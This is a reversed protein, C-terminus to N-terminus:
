NQIRWEQLRHVGDPDGCPGRNNSGLSGVVRVDKSRAPAYVSEGDDCTLHATQCHNCARAAKKRKRPKDGASAKEGTSTSTGTGAGAESSKQGSPQGNTRFSIESGIEDDDDDDNDDDVAARAGVGAGTTRVGQQQQRNPEPHGARDREEAVASLLAQEM